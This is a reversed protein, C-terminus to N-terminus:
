LSVVILSLVSINVKTSPVDAVMENVGSLPYLMLLTLNFLISTVDLTVFLEYVILLMEAFVVSSTSNSAIGGVAYVNDILAVPLPEADYSPVVIRLLVLENVTFSPVDAVM